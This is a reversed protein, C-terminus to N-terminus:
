NFNQFTKYYGLFELCQPFLILLTEMKKTADRMKWRTDRRECKRDRKECRVNEIDCRANGVNEIDSRV